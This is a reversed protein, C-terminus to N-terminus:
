TTANAALATSSFTALPVASSDFTSHPSLYIRTSFQGAATNGYNHVVAGVTMTSGVTVTANQPTLNDIELNAVANIISGVITKGLYLKQYDYLDLEVYETGEVFSDTFTHINVDVWQPSLASFTIPTLTPFGDYDIGQTASF